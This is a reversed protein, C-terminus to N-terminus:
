RTKWQYVTMNEGGTSQSFRGNTQFIVPKGRTLETYWGPFTVLYDAGHQDLFVALKHEDRIIPIIVPTVLGALDIIKRQSFYGVAGIDHVAILDDPQTNSRLWKATAVMETNVIAVDQGYSNAGLVYFAGLVFVLVIGWTRVAVWLPKAFWSSTKVKATNRLGDFSGVLGILFYVPMAPILYRGHQYTVPLQVAYILSFGLWWLIAGAWLSDRNKVALFCKYVFGPLLVIGIGTLPLVLERLYRVALSIERMSAYEAQKAYFTNPWVHGSFQYNFLLYGAIPLALGGFVGMLPKLRDRFSKGSFTLVFLVPGLLTLTEPRIWVGIGIVAGTLAYRAQRLSQLLYLVLSIIAAILITEMGSAAAWVLHWEFVIMVGAIPLPSTYNPVSRRFIAETCVALVWLCFAGLIFTQIFPIGTWIRHLAALLLSWLPSTSGASPIGPIFSWEGLDALNRAYTQHIWADDLPFGIGQTRAATFIYIGTAIFAAILNIWIWWPYKNISGNQQM